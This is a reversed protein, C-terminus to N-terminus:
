AWVQAVSPPELGSSLVHCHAHRRDRHARLRGEPGRDLSRREAGTKTAARTRHPRPHPACLAGGGRVSADVVGEVGVTLAAVPLNTSQLRACNAGLTQNTSSARRACRGAPLSPSLQGRRAPRHAPADDERRMRIRHHPCRANDLGSPAADLICGISAWPAQGM